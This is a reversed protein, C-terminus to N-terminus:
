RKETRSAFRLFMSRAIGRTRKGTKQGRVRGTVLHNVYIELYDNYMGSEGSLLIHTVAFSNTIARFVLLDAGGLHIAM